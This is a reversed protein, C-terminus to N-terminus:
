QTPIGSLVRPTYAIAGSSTQWFLAYKWAIENPSLEGEAGADLMLFPDGGTSFCATRGRAFLLVANELHSTVFALPAGIPSTTKNQVVIVQVHLQPLIPIPFFRSTFINVRETVESPCLEGLKVVFSDIAGGPAPQAAHVTPFNPSETFGTVYATGASDVAIGVGWEWGSGGLYTSSVLANGAANLKAVFGDAGGGAHVPQVASVTPFDDSATGGTVYAQGLMDIAIGFGWDSQAGGLYTSYILSRGDASFKTVFANWLGPNTPMFADATTPFDTTYATGVVYTEGTDDVAIGNAESSTGLTAPGVTASGGLYTSYVLAGTGTFKMVFAISGCGGFVIPPCTTQFAGSSIPFDPSRTTGSIYIAGSPDVAVRERTEDLRGGFYTVYTLATGTANLKAMFGDFLGAVETQFAGPTARLGEGTAGVVIAVGSGDIAIDEAVTPHGTVTAAGGLLTSYALTTGSNGLKIVFGRPACQSTGLPTCTTPLSGLTTPFDPSQTMGVMYVNDLRDVAVSRIDDSGAGGVFVSYLVAGSPDFKTLFGDDEGGGYTNGAVPFDTSETIGGVYANGASDTAITGFIVGRNDDASGGLYTSYLIPDITLPHRRDFHGVAVAVDSRGKIVYASSVVTRRGDIDQYTSPQKQRLTGTAVTVVLDGNPDIQLDDAGEFRLRIANPDAGPAVVFDFELQRQSGHYLLDIGPYVNAYRVKGYTPVNTRWKGPDSGKFYHSKGPLPELGEVQAPPTAGVLKLRIEDRSPAVARVSGGLRPAHLDRDRRPSPHSLRIIAEAPTLFVDYGSARALFRVGEDAQGANEEFSFPLRELPHHLSSHLPTDVPALRPRAGQAEFGSSATSRDSGAALVLLLFPFTVLWRGGVFAVLPVRASM